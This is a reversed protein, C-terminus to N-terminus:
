AASADKDGKPFIDSFRCPLVIDNAKRMDAVTGEEMKRSVTTFHGERM